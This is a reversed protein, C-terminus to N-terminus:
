RKAEMLLVQYCLEIDEKRFCKFAEKRNTYVLWYNKKKRIKPKKM